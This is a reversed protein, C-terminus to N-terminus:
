FNTDLISVHKDYCAVPKYRLVDSEAIKQKWFLWEEVFVM